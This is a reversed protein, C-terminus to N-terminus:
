LGGLEFAPECTGCGAVENGGPATFEDCVDAPLLMPPVPVAGIAGAGTARAGM